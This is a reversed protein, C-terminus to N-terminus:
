VVTYFREYKNFNIMNKNPNVKLNQLGAVPGPISGFTGNGCCHFRWIHTRYHFYICDFQGFCIIAQIPVSENTWYHYVSTLFQTIFYLEYLSRFSMMASSLGEGPATGLCGYSPPPSWLSALVQPNGNNARRNIKIASACGCLQKNRRSNVGNNMGPLILKGHFSLSTFLSSARQHWCDTM